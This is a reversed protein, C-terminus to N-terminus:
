RNWGFVELNPYSFSTSVQTYGDGLRPWVLCEYKFPDTSHTTKKVYRKLRIVQDLSDFSIRHIQNSMSLYAHDTISKLFDSAGRPHASAAFRAGSNQQTTRGGSGSITGSLNSVPEESGTSDSPAVIFQFGQALRLAAMQRMVLLPWDEDSMGPVKRLLFSSRTEPGVLVDYSYVQYNTDLETKTPFYETTLPLCAPSCMSKWKIDYQFTPQAFNHQWRRALSSQSNTFASSVTSPNVSPSTIHTSGTTTRRLTPIGSEDRSPSSIPSVYSRPLGGQKSITSVASDTGSMKDEDIRPGVPRRSAVSTKIEIPKPFAKRIPSPAPPPSPSSPVSTSATRGVDVRSISVQSAEPQSPTARFPNFLWQGVGVSGIALKSGLTAARSAKRRFTSTSTNSTSSRISLQSPSSSRKPELTEPKRIVEEIVASASPASRKNSPRSSTASVVTTAVSSTSSTTSYEPRHPTRQSSPVHRRQNSNTRIPSTPRKEKITTSSNTTTLPPHTLTPGLISLRPLMPRDKTAFVNSDFQDRADRLVDLMDQGHEADPAKVGENDRLYPITLNSSIDHELLGLMQIEHM